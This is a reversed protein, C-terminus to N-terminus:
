LREGFLLLRDAQPRQARGTLGLLLGAGTGLLIGPPSGLLGRATAGLLLRGGLALGVLFRPPPVLVLCPTLGFFQGGFQQRPLLPTLLLAFGSAAHRSRCGGLGPAGPRALGHGGRHVTHTTWCQALHLVLTGVVPALGTAALHFLPGSR